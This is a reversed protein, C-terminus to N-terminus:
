QRQVRIINYWGPFTSDLVKGSITIFVKDSLPFVPISDRRAQERRTMLDQSEPCIWGHLARRLNQGHAETKIGSSV